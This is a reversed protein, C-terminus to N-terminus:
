VQPVLQVKQGQRERPDQIEKHVLQVQLARTGRYALKELQESMAKFGLPDQLVSQVLPERQVLRERQVRLAQLVRLVSQVKPELRVLFTLKGHQTYEQVMLM